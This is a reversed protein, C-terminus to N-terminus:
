ADNEAETTAGEAAAPVPEAAFVQRRLLVVVAIGLVGYLLLFASFPVILGPMPTVADATRMVGYIVWPQRGVETVTWGAEIAIMGLPAAMVLARLLRPQDALSRHRLRGIAAIGALLMMLGGCAVMIQFAIHTIAIPPREGKPFSKIGKIEANADHTALLSLAYPIEIAYRTVEDDEDPLGGIRLSAGIEDQWQGEMAALKLPQMKAVQQAAIDGTLPSLFAAVGGVSLAIALARRHFSRRGGRLLMAAHVGAVAFGVAAFSATLMHLGEVLAAPNWMAAWIDVSILEGGEMTYGTPTNMWGNACIVFIASATGSLLVMVGAGLHARPGVRDWGYLYIGLFIAEFFFAFGELSFPMGIIPGAYAMFAPWLLGLEFSLVTGSVAGVAFMIAVGRSWRKALELYEPDGSRQHLREAIIMLLPMAVGVVAFIIHFGLSFAM